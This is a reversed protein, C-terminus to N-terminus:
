RKRPQIDVMLQLPKNEDYEFEKPARAAAAPARQRLAAIRKRV